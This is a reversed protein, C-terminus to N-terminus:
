RRRMTGRSRIRGCGYRPRGTRYRPRGTRAWAPVPRTGSCYPIPRPTIMHLQTASSYHQRPFRISNASRPTRTTAAYPLDTGPMVYCARLGIAPGVLCTIAATRSVGRAQTNYQAQLYKALEFSNGAKSKVTSVGMIRDVSGVFERGCNGEVVEQYLPLGMGM